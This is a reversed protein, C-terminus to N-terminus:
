MGSFHSAVDHPDLSGQISCTRFDKPEYYEGFFIHKKNVSHSLFASKQGFGSVDSIIHLHAQSLLHIDSAAGKM